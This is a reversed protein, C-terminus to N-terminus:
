KEAIHSLLVPLAICLCKMAVSQFRVQYSAYSIMCLGGDSNKNTIFHLLTCKSIFVVGSFKSFAHSFRWPDRTGQSAEDFNIICDYVNKSFIHQKCNKSYFIQFLLDVLSRLARRLQRNLKYPSARYAPFPIWTKCVHWYISWQCQVDLSIIHRIVAEGINTSLIIYLQDALRSSTVICYFYLSVNTHKVMPKTLRHAYRRKWCHSVVHLKIEFSSKPSTLWSSPFSKDPWGIFCLLREM